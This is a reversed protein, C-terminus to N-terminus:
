RAETVRAPLIVLVHGHWYLRKQVALATENHLLRHFWRERQFILKGAFFTVRPFEGAIGLGLNELGAVVDTHVAVRSTAAMGMRAALDVYRDLENQVRAQLAGISHEGKFEGSDVVAASLFVVNKYVGPFARFVNGLTHIGIGNYGGVLVVATAQSKDLPLPPRPPLRDARELESYLVKLRDVLALFAATRDKENGELGQFAQPSFTRLVELRGSEVNRAKIKDTVDLWALRHENVAFAQV